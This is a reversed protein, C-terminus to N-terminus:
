CQLWKLCIIRHYYDCKCPWVIVATTNGFRKGLTILLEEKEGSTEEGCGKTNESGTLYMWQLLGNQTVLFQKVQHSYVKYFIAVINRFASVNIEWCGMTQSSATYQQTNPYIALVNAPFSLNTIRLPDGPILLFGCLFLGPWEKYYTSSYASSTSPSSLGRVYLSAAGLSLIRWVSSWPKHLLARSSRHTRTCKPLAM